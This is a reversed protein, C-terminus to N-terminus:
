EEVDRRSMYQYLHVNQILSDFTVITQISDIWGDSHVYGYESIRIDNENLQYNILSDLINGGWKYHMFFISKGATNTFLLSQKELANAGFVTEGINTVIFNSNQQSGLIFYHNGEDNIFERHFISDGDFFPIPHIYTMWFSSDLELFDSFDRRTTLFLPGDLDTLKPFPTNSVSFVTDVIIVEETFIPQRSIDKEEHKNSSKSKCGCLLLLVIGIRGSKM